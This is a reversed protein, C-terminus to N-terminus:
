EPARVTVRATESDFREDSTWVFVEVVTEGPAKALLRNPEIFDAIGPDRSEWRSSVTGAVPGRLEFDVTVTDGAVLELSDTVIRVRLGGGDTSLEFVDCAAALVVLGAALLRVPRRERWTRRGSGTPVIVYM